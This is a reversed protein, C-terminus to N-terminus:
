LLTGGSGGFYNSVNIKKANMVSRVTRGQECPFEVGYACGRRTMSADLKVIDGHIGADSLARQANIAHTLSGIAATCIKMSPVEKRLRNKPSHGYVRTM